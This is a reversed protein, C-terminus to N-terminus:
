YIAQQRKSFGSDNIIYYDCTTFSLWERTFRKMSEEPKYKLHIPQFPSEVVQLMLLLLVSIRIIWNPDCRLDLAM